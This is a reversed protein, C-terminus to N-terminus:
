PKDFHNLILILDAIDVEGDKNVDAAIPAIYKGGEGDDFFIPTKWNEDSSKATFFYAAAAVDALDVKGDGNVDYISRGLLIETVAPAGIEVPVVSGPTSVDAATIAVTAFGLECKNKLVAEFFDYNGEPAGGAKVMLVEMAYFDGAPVWGYEKAVVWGNLGKLSESSFYKDEVEFTMKILTIDEPVNALSFTYTVSTDNTTVTKPGTVVVTPGKVEIGTGVVIEYTDTALVAGDQDKMTVEVVAIGDRLATYSIESADLTYGVGGIKGPGKDDTKSAIPGAALEILNAGSIVEWEYSLSAGTPEYVTSDGTGSVWQYFNSHNVKPNAQLNATQGIDLRNKNGRILVADETANIWLRIASAGTV